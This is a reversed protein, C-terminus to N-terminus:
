QYHGSMGIAVFRDDESLAELATVCALECERQLRSTDLRNEAIWERCFALSADELNYDDVVVHLGGGASNFQYVLAVLRAAVEIPDYENM